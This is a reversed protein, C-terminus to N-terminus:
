EGEECIWDLLELATKTVFRKAKSKFTVRNDYQEAFLLIVSLSINYVQSYNKLVELSPTKRGAEIESIYSRCINLRQSTKVQTDRNFVRIHKLIRGLNEM